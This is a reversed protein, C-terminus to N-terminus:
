NPRGSAEQGQIAQTYYAACEHLPTMCISDLPYHITDVHWKSTSLNLVVQEAGQPTGLDKTTEWELMM